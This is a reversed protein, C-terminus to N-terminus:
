VYHINSLFGPEYEFIMFRKHSGTYGQDSTWESDKTASPLRRVMLGADTGDEHHYHGTHIERIVSKSYEKPFELVFQKFLDNVKGYKYECHGFGIFCKNWYIVKRPTLENDVPINPYMAKLMETFCWSFSKDHNGKSYYLKVQKAQKIATDIIHVYFWRADNWATKMDVKDIHTGKVTTGEFNDNHLLDQGIIINIEEWKRSNIIELIRNLTNEYNKYSNLGFHMDFLPIELMKKDPAKKWSSEFKIYKSRAETNDRIATLIEEYYNDTNRAQKIWSQVINGDKDVHVTAKYPKYEYKLNASELLMDDYNYKEKARQIYRKFSTFSRPHKYTKVYYDDYIKKYTLDKTLLIYRKVDADSIKDLKVGNKDIGPNM